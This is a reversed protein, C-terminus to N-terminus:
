KKVLTIQKAALVKGEASIEIVVPGPEKHRTLERATMFESHKTRGQLTYSSMKDSVRAEHNWIEGGKKELTGEYFTIRLSNFDFGTGYRFQIYLPDGMNFETSTDAVIQLAPNWERGCVVVPDETRCGVLMSGVALLIALIAHRSTKRM